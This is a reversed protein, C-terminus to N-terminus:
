FIYTPYIKMCAPYVIFCLAKFLFPPIFALPQSQVEHSKVGCTTHMHLHPPASTLCLLCSSKRDWSSLLVQFSSSGSFLEQLFWMLSFALLIFIPAVMHQWARIFIVLRHLSQFPPHLLLLLSFCHTSVTRKTPLVSKEVADEWLGLEKKM